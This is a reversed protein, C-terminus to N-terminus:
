GNKSRGSVFNFCSLQDKADINHKSSTNPWKLILFKIQIIQDILPEKLPVIDM